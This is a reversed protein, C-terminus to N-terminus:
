WPEDVYQSCVGNQACVRSLGGPHLSPHTQEERALEAHTTRSLNPAASTVCDRRHFLLEAVKCTNNPSVVSSSTTLVRSAHLGLATTTLKWDFYTRGPYHGPSPWTLPGMHGLQMYYPCPRHLNFDFPFLSKIYTAIQERENKTTM